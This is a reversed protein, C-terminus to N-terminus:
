DKYLTNFYKVKIVHQDRTDRFVAFVIVQLTTVGGIRVTLPVINPVTKVM